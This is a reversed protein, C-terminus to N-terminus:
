GGGADLFGVVRRVVKADRAIARHGLGHTVELRSGAWCDALAQSAAPPWLEDDDCHIFLARARLGAAEGEPNFRDHVSARRDREAMLETIRLKVSAPLDPDIPMFQRRALEPRTPLPAAILVAAGAHLGKGLAKISVLVGLSHAVVAEIPGLAREVDLIADASPTIGVHDSQSHGHGPLDVAVLARGAGVLREILPTWLTHDDRSGHILMVAPGEGYRWAAVPGVGTMVDTRAVERLPAAVRLRPRRRPRDIVRIAWDQIEAETLEAM